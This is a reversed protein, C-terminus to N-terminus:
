RKQWNIGTIKIGMWMYRNICIPMNLLEVDRLILSSKTSISVTCEVYLLQQLISQTICYIEEYPNYCNTVSSLFATKGEIKKSIPKSCRKIDIFTGWKEKHGTFRKM